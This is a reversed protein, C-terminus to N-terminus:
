KDKKNKRCKIAETLFMTFVTIGALFIGIQGILTHPKTVYGTVLVTTAIVWLHQPKMKKYSINSQLPLVGGRHPPVEAFRNIQTEKEQHVQSSRNNKPNTLRILRARRPINRYRSVNRRREQKCCYSCM